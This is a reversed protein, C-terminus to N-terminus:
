DSDILKLQREIKAISERQEIQIELIVTLQKLILSEVNGIMKLIEIVASEAETM